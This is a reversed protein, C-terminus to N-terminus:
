YKITKEVLSGSEDDINITVLNSQQSDTNIIQLKYNNGILKLSQTQKKSSSKGSSRATSTVSSYVDYYEPDFFVRLRDHGSDKMTDVFLDQKLYINPYIKPANSNSILKRVIQNKYRNFSIEFQASYNSSLGHADSSCIAYIYTSDMAFDIDRFLRRAGSVKLIKDTPAIEAPVVRSTSQDFDLEGLLTFPVNINKRRFIQYRVIDRQPNLPSEWYLVLNSTAFDWRFTIDAPPPPPVSEVCDIKLRTGDSAVMIVAIVVQDEVDGQEDIQIAEFRTLTVVRANYVYTSGYKVEKDIFTTFSYDEIIIPSHIVTTWTGDSNGAIETKEVYFGIPLSAENYKSTNASIADLKVEALSNLTLEYQDANIVGPTLQEIAKSQIKKASDLLSEIEDQFINTKDEISGVLVNKVFKSNITLDYDIFRVSRFADESIEERVDTAAYSANSNQINSLSDRIQSGNPSFVSKSSIITSLEESVKNGSSLSDIGFFSVSSSLAYYFSQDIGDDQLRVGTFYGNSLGGEFYLKNINSEIINDDLSSALRALGKDDSSMYSPQISISNYRPVKNLKEIQDSMQSKSSERVVATGRGNTREDKLYFNYVFQGTINKVEPIDILTAPSSPYTEIEYELDINTLVDEVTDVLNEFRTTLAM